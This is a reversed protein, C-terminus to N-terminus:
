APAGDPQGPSKRTLGSRRESKTKYGLSRYLPSDEGHEHAGKIANVVLLYSGLAQRDALMRAALTAAREQNLWTLRSRQEFASATAARFQDLTM